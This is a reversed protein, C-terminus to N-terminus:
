GAAGPVEASDSSQWLHLFNTLMLLQSRAAENDSIRPDYRGPVTGLDPVLARLYAPADLLWTVGMTLAYAILHRRIEGTDLRPGGAATFEASFHSLLGELHCEWMSTEASCLAGWLAMAVNMKSVCGWDLLGAQLGDPTRWFWANDVNANWHCLAVHDGVANLEAQARDAAAAIGAVERDMRDLFERERLRHPLLNPHAAAFEAYAAVRERLESPFYPIREGVTVLAPDFDFGDAFGADLTGARHAGAVRAVASLLARYHSLPDPMRYDLCKDYHPEVAATGFPIRETILVGTGSAGHYDAFVAVPIRIPFEGRALVAFRVERAMQTRGRDRRPNDFDRSFKVFLETPLGPEPRAYRLTLLLKRGTSGGPCEEFQTVDTVHNDPSLSGFRHFASDLFSVAEARLSDADAPIRLGFFDGPVWRAENM